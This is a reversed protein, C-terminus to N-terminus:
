ADLPEAAPEEEAAELEEAAVVNRYLCVLMLALWFMKFEISSLFFVGVVLGVV